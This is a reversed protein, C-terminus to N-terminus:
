HAADASTDTASVTASVTATSRVILAVVGVYALSAVVWVVDPHPASAWWWEIERGLAVHRPEGLFGPLLGSTHRQITVLLAMSHALGLALVATVRGATGLALDPEGQLRYLAIGLLPFLLVM